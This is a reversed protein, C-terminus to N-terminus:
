SKCYVLRDITQKRNLFRWYQYIVGFCYKKFFYSVALVGVEVMAELQMFHLMFIYNKCVFLCALFVVVTLICTSELGRM